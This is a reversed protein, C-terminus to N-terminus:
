ARFRSSRAVKRTFKLAADKAYDKAAGSSVDTLNDVINVQVGPTLDTVVTEVAHETAHEGLESIVEGYKPIDKARTFVDATYTNQLTNLGKQTTSSYTEINSLKEQAKTVAKELQEYKRLARVNRYM